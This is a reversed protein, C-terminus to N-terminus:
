ERDERSGFNNHKVHVKFFTNHEQKTRIAINLLDLIYYM